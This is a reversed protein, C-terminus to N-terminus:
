SALQQLHLRNQVSKFVLDDFEQHNIQEWYPMWQGYRHEGWDNMKQRIKLLIEM